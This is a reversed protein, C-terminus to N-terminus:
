HFNRLLTVGKNEKWRSGRNRNFIVGQDQFRFRLCFAPQLPKEDRCGANRTEIFPLTDPPWNPGSHPPGNVVSEGHHTPEFQLFVLSNKTMWPYESPSVYWISLRTSSEIKLSLVKLGSAQCIRCLSSSFHPWFTDLKPSDCMLSRTIHKFILLKCPREKAEPPHQWIPPQQYEDLTWRHSILITLRFSNDRRHIYRFWDGSFTDSHTWKEPTHGFTDM